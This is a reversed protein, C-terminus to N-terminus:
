GNKDICHFGIPDLVANQIAVNKLIFHNLVCPYTFSLIVIKLSSNIYTWLVTDAEFDSM